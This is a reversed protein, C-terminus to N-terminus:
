LSRERELYKCYGIVISYFQIGNAVVFIHWLTHSGLFVQVFRNSSKSEPWATHFFFFGVGLYVFGMVVQWAFHTREFESAVSFYWYLALGLCVTMVGIYYGQKM